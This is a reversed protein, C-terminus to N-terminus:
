FSGPRLVFNHRARDEDPDREGEGPDIRRKRAVFVPRRDKTEGITASTSAALDRPRRASAAGNIRSRTGRMPQSVIASKVSASHWFPGILKLAENDGDVM